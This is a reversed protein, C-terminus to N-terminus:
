VVQRSQSSAVHISLHFIKFKMESESRTKKLSLVKLTQDNMYTTRTANRHGYSRVQQDVQVM